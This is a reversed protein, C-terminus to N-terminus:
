TTTATLSKRLWNNPAVVLIQGVATNDAGDAGPPAKRSYMEVIRLPASASATIQSSFAVALSIGTTANGAMSSSMGINQGVASLGLASGETSTRILYLQNPDDIVFVDSDATGSSTAVSAPLYRSWRKEGITPSYYECGVFVGLRTQTDSGTAKIVYGPDASSFIVTDGYYIATAYSSRAVFSKQGATPAAGEDAGYPALGFGVGTNAM